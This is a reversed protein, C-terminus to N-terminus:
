YNRVGHFLHTNGKHFRAAKATATVGLFDIDNKWFVYPMSIQDRTSYTNVQKWWAENFASAEPKRYIVNGEFLGFQEPMGDAKYAAIQRKIDAAVGVGRSLCFAAEEFLCRRSTKHHYVSVEASIHHKNLLPSERHPFYNADCWITEEGPFLLHPHMKSWKADLMGSAYKRPTERVDWISAEIRDKYAWTDKNDVFYVYEVGDHKQTPEM